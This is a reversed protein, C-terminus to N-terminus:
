VYNNNLLKYRTKTPISKMKRSFKLDALFPVVSLILRPQIEPSAAPMQMRHKPVAQKYKENGELCYQQYKGICCYLDGFLGFVWLWHLGQYSLNNKVNSHFLYTSKNMLTKQELWNEAARMCIDLWKYTDIIRETQRDTERQIIHMYIQKQTKIYSHYQHKYAFM